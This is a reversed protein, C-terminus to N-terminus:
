NGSWQYDYGAPPDYALAFTLGGGPLPTSDWYVKIYSVHGDVFSVMNKADNFVLHSSSEHWSWPVLASAKAVLVTRSPHKVSSLKVGTLGPRTWTITGLMRVVNDGGNFAYSSYDLYNTGHLSQRVYRWQQQPTANVSVFGPYFMDAPCAFLKDRSSAEGPPGVYSKMLEKYGSYLTIPNTAGAAKGPTPPADNSDDGYMRVGLNIQRLNNLCATRRARDKAGKFVPFLLAALIAVVAIVVLLELVTFANASKFNKKM